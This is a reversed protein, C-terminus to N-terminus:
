VKRNFFLNPKKIVLFAAALLVFVYLILVGTIRLLEGGGLEVYGLSNLAAPFARYANVSPLGAVFLGALAFLGVIAQGSLWGVLFILLIYCLVQLTGNVFFQYLLLGTDAEIAPNNSGSRGIEGSLLAAIFLVGLLLLTWLAFPALFRSLWKRTSGHRLVVYYIRAKLENDLVMLFMYAFGLFVISHYMYLTWEYGAASVGYFAVFFVDLPTGVSGQLRFFVAYALGLACLIAYALLAPSRRRRLQLLQRRDKYGALGFGLLIAAALPLFVLADPQYAELSRHLMLFNAVDLFPAGEIPHRFSFVQGLYIVAAAMYVSFQRPVLLYVAALLVHCCLFAMGILAIQLALALMPAPGQASVIGLVQNMPSVAGSAPSWGTSVPLGFATTFSAALWILLLLAMRPLADLASKFLWSRYSGLRILAPWSFDRSVANCTSFLWIPVLCYSLYYPDLAFSIVQDWMNVPLMLDHSLLAVQNRVSLGYFLSLALLALHWPAPAQGRATRIM